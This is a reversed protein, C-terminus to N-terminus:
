TNYTRGGSIKMCSAYIPPRKQRVFIVRLGKTVWGVTDFCQLSFEPKIICTTM